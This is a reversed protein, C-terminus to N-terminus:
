FPNLTGANKHTGKLIRLIKGPTTKPGAPAKYHRYLGITEKLSLLHASCNPCAELHRKVARCERSELDKDLNECIHRLAHRCDTKKQKM